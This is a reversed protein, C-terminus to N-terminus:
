GDEGHRRRAADALFAVIRRADRGDPDLDANYVGVSWGRCVEAQLAVRTVATLDAWTLGRQMAPDQAAGCSRFEAADLVDLDTHLWWASVSAQIHRIANLAARGPDRHVDEANGLRVRGAISAVGIEARYGADRQGLMALAEPQLAPLRSQLPEPAHQGTLGLLLAVEMNAVEGTTTQEMTTADEHADVFLLGASGVTDRLAPLAGLLVACDGGYLLPFRGDQLSAQVREDVQQIMELLARENVFGAAPGRRPDPERVVIDAALRGSPLAATLGAERLRPPAVAQGQARGSGDFCVGILDLSEKLRTAM